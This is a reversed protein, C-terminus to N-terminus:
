NEVIGIPIFGVKSMMEETVGQSKDRLLINEIYKGMMDLELNLEGGITKSGLTTNKLTHPVISIRMRNNEVNAVTLSVGDVAISGKTIIYRGFERPFEIEYEFHSGKDNRGKLIGTGDVHGSVFHGGIRDVVSLARELNVRNGIVLDSLNSLVLSETVAEVSFNNRGKQVATLCIGNVSVSDGIKLDSLVRKAHITFIRSQGKNVVSSIVGIEEIIGTFM